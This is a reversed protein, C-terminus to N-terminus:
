GACCSLQKVDKNFTQATLKLGEVMTLYPFLQDALDNITMSNRIALAATQIIEGGENALVQCGVIRGSDKEAVLKIFGRTDMNALARPVNELDLTRSEVILGQASAQQETLGVTGVQPETFVVAPMVTLDIAVDDGTMNRAARTGAAAAVYVFQPQSTCDGAAYINEINTRMHDDIVIGGRKDTKVGIKDLDLAATNPARGTAVLLQEGRVEGQNTQVIFQQGDHNVTDPSTNLMVKIGEDEFASALGAGIAPDEKSLFTSRALVTVEAGLHRFAQALELAVVSAGLVILHEPVTESVLAETSTWFPTDQLGPINPISASAGVALLIRDAQVEKETGDAKTVILTRADKFRAMGWLLNIGPNSELISEYKAYRLKEVWEQQQAMMAKRDIKPTNLPLGGISHHGQLHAIYAGRIFIKSPVCGVNVCTGGIVEAGEIITVQAGQEVAKISAAFAGSGTGVIAIHLDSDGDSSTATNNNLLTAGYGTAEITRLLQENNVVGQTEVSALGEDYSVSATIGELANLASQASQACHDCTMGTIQINVTKM